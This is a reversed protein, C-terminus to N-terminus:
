RRWRWGVLRPLQDQGAYGPFSSIADRGLAREEMADLRWGVRAAATLWVGIPRHHFTVVRGGVDTPTAAEDLYPGWRWLVDGDDVDVIPGSGDATFAPHNAVVVLWGGPRVVRHLGGFLDPLDALHEFVLVGCAGGLSASRLWDLDPLRCQVVPGSAKARLLLDASLDCGVVSSGLHRMVRGEGCGVELWPGDRHPMVSDLLPTVDSAFVPDTAVEALWWEAAESWEDSM